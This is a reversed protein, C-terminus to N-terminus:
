DELNRYAEEIVELDKKAMKWSLEPAAGTRLSKMFDNFMGQYGGMDKMGPFILKKKKGRVLIFLGNTEFTISGERGLIKSLRYGRFITDAEWSYFLNIIFGSNTKVTVQSSRELKQNQKQDPFFGTVSKLSLGLNNIFNVWHIGGEYLSVLVQLRLIM